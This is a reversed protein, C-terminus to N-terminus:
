VKKKKERGMPASFFGWLVWESWWNRLEIFFKSIINTAGKDTLLAVDSQFLGKNQKLSVYYHTDFDLSNEPDMHVTTTTDSLNLCKTNLFEVYAPDLSPDKDGKLGKGIFNYFANSLKDNPKVFNLCGEHAISFSIVPPRSFAIQSTQDAFKFCIELWIELLTKPLVMPIKTSNRRKVVEKVFVTLVLSM